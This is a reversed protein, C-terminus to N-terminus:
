QSSAHSVGLAGDSGLLRWHRVADGYRELYITSTGRPVGKNWGYHAVEVPQQFSEDSGNKLVQLPQVRDWHYKSGGLADLHQVRLVVTAQDMKARDVYPSALQEPSATEPGSQATEAGTQTPAAGNSASTATAAKNGRCGTLPISAILLTILLRNM